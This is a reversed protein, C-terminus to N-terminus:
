LIDRGKENGRDLVGFVNVLLYLWGKGISSLHPVCHPLSPAGAAM